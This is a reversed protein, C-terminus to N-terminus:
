FDLEDIIESLSRGDQLRMRIYDDDSLNYIPVKRILNSRSRTM